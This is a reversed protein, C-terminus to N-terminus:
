YPIKYGKYATINILKRNDYIIEDKRSTEFRWYYKVLSFMFIM